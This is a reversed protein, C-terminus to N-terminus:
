VAVHDVVEACEHEYPPCIDWVKYVSLEANRSWEPDGERFTSNPGRQVLGACRGVLERRVPEYAPGFPSADEGRVIFLLTGKFYAFVKGDVDAVLRESM